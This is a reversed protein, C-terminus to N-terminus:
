YMQSFKQSKLVPRHMKEIAELRDITNCVLYIFEHPLIFPIDIRQEKQEKEFIRRDQKNWELNTKVHEFWKKVVHESISKNILRLCKHVKDDILYLYDQKTARCELEFANLSHRITDISLFNHKRIILAAIILKINVITERSSVYNPCNTLYKNSNLVKLVDKCKIRHTSAEIMDQEELQKKLPNFMPGICLADYFIKYLEDTDTVAAENDLDRDPIIGIIKIEDNEYIM